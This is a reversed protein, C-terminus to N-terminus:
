AAAARKQSRPVYYIFVGAGVLAFVGAVGIWVLRSKAVQSVAKATDQLGEAAAEGTSGVMKLTEGAGYGIIQLVGKASIYAAEIRARLEQQKSFEPVKPLEVALGWYNAVKLLEDKYRGGVDMVVQQHWELMPKAGSVIESSSKGVWANWQPLIGLPYTDSTYMRSLMLSYCYQRQVKELDKSVQDMEFIGEPCRKADPTAELLDNVERWLNLHGAIFPEWMQRYALLDGVDVGVGVGELGLRIVRHGDVYIGDKRIDPCAGLAGGRTTTGQGPAYLREGFFTATM